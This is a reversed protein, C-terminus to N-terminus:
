RDVVKLEIPGNGHKRRWLSQNLSKYYASILYSAKQGDVQQTAYKAQLGAIVVADDIDRTESPHSYYPMVMDTDSAYVHMRIDDIIENAFEVMMLVTNGGVTAAGDGYRRLASSILAALPTGGDVEEQPHLRTDDM